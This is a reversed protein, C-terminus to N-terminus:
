SSLIEIKLALCPLSYNRHCFRLRCLAHSSTCPILCSRIPQAEFWARFRAHFWALGVFVHAYVSHTILTASTTNALLDWAFDTTPSQPEHYLPPLLLAPLGGKLCALGKKSSHTNCLSFLIMRSGRPQLSGPPLTPISGSNSTYCSILPQKIQFLQDWRFWPCSMNRPPWRFRPFSSQCTRRRGMYECPPPHGPITHGSPRQSRLSLCPVISYLSGHIFHFSNLLLCM